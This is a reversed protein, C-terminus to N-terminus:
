VTPALRAAIKDCEDDWVADIADVQMDSVAGMDASKIKNAWYGRVWARAQRRTLKMDVPNDMIKADRM